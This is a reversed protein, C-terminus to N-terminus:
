ERLDMDRLFHGLQKQYLKINVYSKDWAQYM